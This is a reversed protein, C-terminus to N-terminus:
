SLEEGPHEKRWARFERCSMKAVRPYRSRHCWLCFEHHESACQDREWEHRCWFAHTRIWDSVLFLWWRWGTAHRTLREAWMFFRFHWPPSM